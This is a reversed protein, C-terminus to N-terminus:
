HILVQIRFHDRALDQSEKDADDSNPGKTIMPLMQKYPLNGGNDEFLKVALRTEVARIHMCPYLDTHTSHKTFM